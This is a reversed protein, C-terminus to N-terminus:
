ISRGFLLAGVSSAIAMLLTGIATMVASLRTAGRRGWKDMAVNAGMSGVLGGVTFISTIVSFTADSMPICLPLGYYTGDHDINRCTLVAQLQNLASIHYGYQFSVVLVWACVTWGYVTFSKANSM